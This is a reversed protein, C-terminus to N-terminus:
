RRLKRLPSAPAPSFTKYPSAFTTVKFSVLGISHGVCTKQPFQSPPLSYKMSGIVASTSFATGHPVHNAFGAVENNGCKRVSASNSVTEWMGRDTGISPM